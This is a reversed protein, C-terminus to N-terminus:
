KLKIVQLALLRKYLQIAAAVDCFEDMSSPPWVEVEGLSTLIM